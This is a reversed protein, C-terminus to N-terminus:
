RLYCGDGIGFGFEEPFPPLGPDGQLLLPLTDLSAIYGFQGASFEVEGANNGAAIIGSAVDVYVGDALKGCDEACHLAGYHTGRIGITATATNLRYADRQGRKGILGTVTRLGGKVLSFVFSDQAPTEETFGYQDIRIRSAPRM